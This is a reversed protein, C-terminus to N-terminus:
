IAFNCHLQPSYFECKPKKLIIQLRQVKVESYSIAETEHHDLTVQKMICTAKEM